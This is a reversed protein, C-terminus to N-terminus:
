NNSFKVTLKMDYVDMLNVTMRNAVQNVFNAIFFINKLLTFEFCKLIKHIDRYIGDLIVIIVMCPFYQYTLGSFRYYLNNIM